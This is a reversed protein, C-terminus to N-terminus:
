LRRPKRSPTPMRSGVIQTRGPLGFLAADPKKEPMMRSGSAPWSATSGTASLTRWVWALGREATPKRCGRRRAQRALLEPRADIEGHRADAAGDGLLDLRQRADGAGLDGRADAALRVFQDIRMTAPQGLAEVGLARAASPKLASAVNSSMM